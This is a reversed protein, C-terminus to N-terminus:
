LVKHMFEHKNLNFNLLLVVVLKVFSDIYRFDLRDAPRNEGSDGFVLAKEISTEVMVSCFQFLVTPKSVVESTELEAFLKNMLIEQEERNHLYSTVVWRLFLEKLKKSQDDNKNSGIKELINTCFVGIKADSSM